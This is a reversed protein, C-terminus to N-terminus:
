DCLGLRRCLEWYYRRHEPEWRRGLDNALEHLAALDSRGSRLHKLLASAVGRRGEDPVRMMEDLLQLIAQDFMRM